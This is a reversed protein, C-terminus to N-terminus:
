LPSTVTHFSEELLPWRTSLSGLSRPMLLITTHYSYCRATGPRMSVAPAALLEDGTIEEAHRADQVTQHTTLM